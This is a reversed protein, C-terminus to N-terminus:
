FHKHLFEASQKLSAVPSKDIWNRHSELIVADIGAKKAQDALAELPMNGTGLELSDSKMIPTMQAGSARFGRDNIHWLKMRSGLDQMLFLANAGAETPWYSDFEFNVFEPKTETLLVDWATRGDPLRSFEINHNHYLLSVGEGALKEGAANLRKVLGLVAEPDSYDFRYMGTIVIYRCRFQKTDSVVGLGAEKLLAPWNLKGGKGTPMGAAKTLARVLFSTPRIMFGNLELADYGAAKIQALTARADAENGTVSGLMIQQVAKQIM